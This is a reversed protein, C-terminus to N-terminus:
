DRLYIKSAGLAVKTTFTQEQTELDFVYFSSQATYNPEVGYLRGYKVDMGYLNQAILVTASLVEDNENIKFVKGEAYYYIEGADFVMLSPHEGEKFPLSSIVTNSTVDITQIAGVTHGEISWDTPNYITNGESLVVLNDHSNFFLEDPNDEVKIESVSDSLTDIISIINNTGYAGKHSVYLKNGKSIIREPGNGVSITKEVKNNSLDVVAIFDDTTNYPDGWNTVYGKEGIVTMFRPTKLDEKIEGTKIFSSKDVVSITNTNDVIIYASIESFAISQLFTGLQVGNASLYIFQHKASQDSSLYTVSGTGAGSGEGSILIGTTYDREVLTISDQHCSVLSFVVVLLIILQKYM